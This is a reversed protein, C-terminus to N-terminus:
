PGVLARGAGWALAAALLCGLVTVLLHMAGLAWAGDQFYRFTAANFASYTTFGGLVGTAVAVRVTPDIAETRLAVHPWLVVLFSGLLNAAMTGYPFATGLVRQCWGDLHHRAISGLAGGFGIWLTQV